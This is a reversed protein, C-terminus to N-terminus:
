INIWMMMFTPESLPGHQQSRHPHQIVMTPTRNHQQCIPCIYIDKCPVCRLQEMLPANNNNNNAKLGHVNWNPDKVELYSLKWLADTPKSRLDSPTMTTPHAPCVFLHNVDRPTIGCDACVNLSADKKIRSNYSGQLKCYRSRLQALTSREKRTLYKESNRITPPRGDLVM